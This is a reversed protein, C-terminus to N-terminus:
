DASAAEAAEAAAAACAESAAATVWAAAMPTESTRGPPGTAACVAAGPAFVLPHAPEATDPSAAAVAAVEAAVAAAPLAPLLPLPWPVREAEDVADADEATAADGDLRLVRRLRAASPSEEAAALPSSSPSMSLSLSAPSVPTAPARQWRRPPEPVVGELAKDFLLVLLLDVGALLVAVPLRLPAEDELLLLLLLLLEEFLVAAFALEPAFPLPLPFPIIGGCIIAAMCACIAAIAREIPMVIDNGPASAALALLPPLLPLLLLELLLPM